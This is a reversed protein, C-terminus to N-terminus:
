DMQYKIIISAYGTIISDFKYTVPNSSIIKKNQADTAMVRGGMEFDFHESVHFNLGAEGGMYPDSITRAESEGKVNFRGDLVGANLGIYFNAIKSFNFLYELEGGYGIFYDYGDVFYNRVSLFIRYNESEAGIKLGIEPQNYSKIASAAPPAIKEVDFTSYGGEFGVLSKINFRYDDAQAAGSMLLLSVIGAAIKKM